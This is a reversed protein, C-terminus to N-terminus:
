LLLCSVSACLARFLKTGPNEEGAYTNCYQQILFIFTSYLTHPAVTITPENRRERNMDFICKNLSKIYKVMEEKKQNGTHEVFHSLCLSICTYILMFERHVMTVTNRIQLYQKVIWVRDTLCM